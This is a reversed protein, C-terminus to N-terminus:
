LMRWKCVKTNPHFFEFLTGGTRRVTTITRTVLGQARLRKLVAYAQRMTLLTPGCVDRTEIGEDGQPLSGLLSLTIAQYELSERPRARDFGGPSPHNGTRPVTM